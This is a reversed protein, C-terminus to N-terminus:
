LGQRTVTYAAWFFPHAAGYRRRRAEIQRLQAERLAEAKGKGAALDDFFAAMLRASEVDPIQWLTSIVTQAGALQFAQRLGAVGEGNRLQGLGTECASLVVLETGRLDTGVIELGTLVGDEDGPATAQERRNAGALLLGCRLMPNEAAIALPEGGTGPPHADLYFAHTSLVVVRPRILTKFVSESAQRDTYLVPDARILEKLAPLIAKAETATGPLREARGLETAAPPSRRALAITPAAQRTDPRAEAPSLDYDPDAFVYAHDPRTSPVRPHVLDRGSVVYEVQHAEIAYRGDPLPLAAWPVLWLAADPSIIWRDIPGIRSILPVLVRDALAHWPAQLSKVAEEEGRERLLAAYPRLAKRAGDIASDIPAADGLDIMVVDGRGAAPIVWAAYAEPFVMRVIKRAQLDRREYRAIEVLVADAPIARRVEDLSVWPDDRAPRGEAQGLQRTLAQEEATLQERRRRRVVDKPDIGAITLTALDKRVLLLQRVTRGLLPDAIDRTLLTREAVAQQMVAKGNLVWGASLDAMGPDDRRLQALSLSGHYSPRDKNRLFDLQEPESLAPLVRAVHRRDMRRADDFAQAAETWRKEGIRIAALNPLSSAVAPHDPGYQVRKIELSRRLLTDAQADDGRAWALMALNNLNDAVNPHNPGLRAEWIALSRKLLPEAQDNKGWEFYLAALNNLSLALDPHDPPLKAERIKLGRQYLAEARAYQGMRDYLTALSTTYVATMPDDPGLKAKTMEVARQYLPEAEAYRGSALDLGALNSLSEAVLPHGAPFASERIKLSRVYLPEARAYDGMVEALHAVRDLSRAVDLHSPGRRTEVIKLALQFLPEAKERLGMDLYNMGLNHAVTAVRVHDPGLRTRYIALCRLFLPEAEAYRAQRRRLEALNNLAFALDVAEPGLRAEYTKLGKVFLPEAQDFRGLAMEVAGLNVQSMAVKPDDPGLRAERITLARRFLPEAEASRGLQHMLSGQDNLVVAVSLDDPGLRATKIELARRFLVEAKTFLGQDQYHEGLTVMLTATDSSNPGLVKLALGLAKEYSAIAETSKGQASLARAQRYAEMMADRDSKPQARAEADALLVRVM